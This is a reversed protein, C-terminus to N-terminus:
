KKGLNARLYVASADRHARNKLEKETADAAAADGSKRQALALDTRCVFDLPICKSLEVVADKPGTKAWAALGHAYAARSTRVADPSAKTADDLVAVLKDADASPKGAIAALRLMGLAQTTVVGNKADGSLGDTRTMATAYWKTADAPKGALDLIRARDLAAFAFTPFQKATADKEIEDLSALAQPLKGDAFSIWASDIAVEFKEGPTTSTKRQAFAENAGKYDGRYARALGVGQWALSFKPEITVAAQFAKESEDFKGAWLLVEGLTDQPNPEKPSLEVQKKAAAIAPDWALQSAHAYALANQAQPLDAKLSLAHELNKIAGAPDGSQNRLNALLIDVRWAGPVLQVVKELSAIGKAMEGNRLSLNAAILEREAEPLKAALEVAKTLHNAGESGPSVIGLYSHAQAFEPDLEVAKKFHEVAESNRANTVLELGKDFAAIAEPSKSTVTIQAAAAPPAPTEKAKIEVTKSTVPTPDPKKEEAKKGCGSALLVAAVLLMNKM